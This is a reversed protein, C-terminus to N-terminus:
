AKKLSLYKPQIHLQHNKIVDLTKGPPSVKAGIVLRDLSRRDFDILRHSRLWSALVEKAVAHPLSLFWARGLADRKDQFHLQNVLLTDIEQNIRAQKEAMELLQNKAEEHVNPLISHRVYNRHYKLDANTSDERWLLQNDHAHRILFHKPVNLLPRHLDNLSTLPSLGKRGTGRLINMIVTELLDDQHHATIISRAGTARRVRRLFAYRADRAAAESADPGLEGHAYVFPLGHRAAVEQVLRRDESSDERIGHDYHAVTLKIGPQQRLMDLLVM